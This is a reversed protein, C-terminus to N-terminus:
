LQNNNTATTNALKLNNLNILKNTYNTLLESLYKKDNDDVFYDDILDDLIYIYTTFNTTLYDLNIPIGNYTNKPSNYKKLIDITAKKNGYRESLQYEFVWRNIFERITTDREEETSIKYDEKENDSFSLYGCRNITLFSFSVYNILNNWWVDERINKYANLVFSDVSDLSKAVLNARILRNWIYGYGEKYSDEEVKGYKFTLNEIPYEFTTINYKNDQTIRYKQFSFRVSDLKYKIVLNYMDELVLNDKFLDGADFNLVYKGRSYLFGNLRTKFLGMHKLQYFIRIRPDKNLLDNYIDNANETSLDDVIIIEINRISQNQISRITKIVENKKNYVPIIISILPESTNVNIKKSYILKGEKCLEIFKDTKVLNSREESFTDNPKMYKYYEQQYKEEEHENIPRVHKIYKNTLNGNDIYLIRGSFVDSLAPFENKLELTLSPYLKRYRNEFSNITENSEIEHYVNNELFGNNMGQSPPKIKTLSYVTFIFAALLLFYFLENDKQFNVCTNMQVPALNNNKDLLNSTEKEKDKDKQEKQTEDKLNKITEQNIDSVDINSMIKLYNFFLKYNM